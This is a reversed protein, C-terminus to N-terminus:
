LFYVDRGKAGDYAGDVTGAKMKKLGRRLSSRM